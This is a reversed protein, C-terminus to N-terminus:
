INTLLRQLPLSPSKGAASTTNPAQHMRKRTFSNMGPISYRRSLSTSILIRVNSLTDSYVKINFIKVKENYNKSIFKFVAPTIDSLSLMRGMRVLMYDAVVLSYKHFNSKFSTKRSPSVILADVPSNQGGKSEALIPSLPVRFYCCCRM